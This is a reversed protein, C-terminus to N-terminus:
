RNPDGFNFYPLMTRPAPAVEYQPTFWYRLYGLLLTENFDQANDIAALAGVSVQPAFLYEMQAAFNYGIGTVDNSPYIPSDIPEDPNNALFQGYATQLTTSTPFFAVADEQFAQVGLAANLKWSFRDRRGAVEVPVGLSLYFQPSFYGGHGFTFRRRNKEFFFSTANVGYTVRLGPRDIGRAYVGAGAEVRRNEDTNLGDYIHYAGNVYVGFDGMDYAIDLRGGTRYVGGFDLGLGPDRAGAYSLLSDTVPRRSADVRFVLNGARPTWQMGGVITEVPFGLPSTGIDLRLDGIDYILGLAVGSADQGFSLTDDNVLALTGFFDLETGALTGASLYVPNARLSFRGGATGPFGFEAPLEIDLLQGLGPQGQRNRLSLGLGARASRQARIERIQRLLDAAEPGAPTPRRAFSPRELVPDARRPAVPVARQQEIEQMERRVDQRWRGEGGLRQEFHRPLVLPRAERRLPSERRHSSPPRYERVRREDRVPGLPVRIVEDRRLEFERDDGSSFVPADGTTWTERVVPPDGRDIIRESLRPRQPAASRPPPWRREVVPPQEWESYGDHGGHDRRDDARMTEGGSPDRRLEWADIVRREEGEVVVEDGEAPVPGRPPTSVKVFGSRCRGGAAIVYDGHRPRHQPSCAGPAFGAAGRLAAPHARAPAAAWGDRGPVWSGDDGGQPPWVDYHRSRLRRDPAQGQERAPPEDAHGAWVGRDPDSAPLEDAYYPLRQRAAPRVPGPYPDLGGAFPDGGAERAILELQPAFRSGGFEQDGREADLALAKRFYELARGDQGRARALRGALAYLRPNRPDLEFARDLLAQAEDLQDLALAAGIAGKYADLNEPDMALVRRYLELTRDYERADNYLRALAMLVRPDDPNVRLLPRLYEYATALDGEERVLDAQRLRYAVRLNALDIAEQETLDDRGVLESIVVEFEADQRLKFLLAAYQLRLGPDPETSSAALAERIYRLARGSDGVEAWANALAGLLEADSGVVPEVQRLIDAAANPRGFRAHVAARECQYRVWLRRQLEAMPQTRADLPIRELLNLAEFWRQQEALLNAKIFIADAHDPHSQLIGDVLTNAERIRGQRQYIRALDMRIWPSSPDLLLAKKLLEEARQDDKDKLAQQALERYFRAQLRALGPLQRRQEEPLRQALDLAQVIRDQAAYLGFLGRIADINDPEAALVERYLREAAEVKDLQVLVDALTTRVSMERRGKPEVSLAARLLREAEVLDGAQRAQEGRRVIGWFRAAELAEIWKDAKGPALAVARALLDEAEAFRQQRLRVIGLGALAEPEDPHQEVLERFLAAATVLDGDNLVQYARRLKEVLPDVPVGDQTKGGGALIQLDRLRGSIEPDPGFRDLYSRFYREDGPKANLWLLAQRWGQQAADAVAPDDVLRALMGIGRRRTEEKYTYHQALALQYVPDDPNEEALREIGVRAEDWKGEVGALTQYYELGLRGGPIQGGFLREYEAVAEAYRGQRALGRPLALQEPSFSGQRIMAEISRIRPHDPHAERLRDLYVQASAPNGSRAEAEALGALAEANRPDARLLKLWAERALDFRGRAEWYRAQTVLKDTADAGSEGFAPQGAAGVLLVALALLLRLTMGRYM